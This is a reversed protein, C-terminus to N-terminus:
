LPWWAPKGSPSTETDRMFDLLAPEDWTQVGLSKAKELKSGAGPGAIVLGTKKSVSDSVTAGNQELWEKLQDRSAFSITGTLVVTRGEFPRPGGSGQGAAESVRLGVEGLRQCLAQNGPEDFWARIEQAILLGVSYVQQLEELSAAGMAELSGFHRALLKATSTGVQPIELAVIVRWLPRSRSGAIAALTNDVSLDAFGELALLKDRDLRYLGDIDEVLGSEVLKQATKESLGEIDMVGRSCFYAVRMGLRGKCLRNPCAWNHAREDVVLATGCHLCDQPYAIPSESGDRSRETRGTIKPIVEGGRKVFVEDGILLGLREIEDLNHLTANRVTVGGVQVPELEAVPSYVGTRSISFSVGKLRTRAEFEPWKFALMFRPSKATYGIAEWRTLDNYKV